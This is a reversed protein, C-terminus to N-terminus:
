SQSIGSIDSKHEGIDCIQLNNVITKVYNQRGKDRVQGCAYGSVRHIRKSCISEFAIPMENKTYVIM